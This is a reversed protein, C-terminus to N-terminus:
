ACDFLTVCVVDSLRKLTCPVKFTFLVAGLILTSKLKVLNGWSKEGKQEECM